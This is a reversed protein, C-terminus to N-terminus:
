KESDTTQPERNITQRMRPNNQAGTRNRFVRTTLRGVLATIQRASLPTPVIELISAQRSNAESIASDECLHGLEAPRVRLFKECLMSFKQSIDNAEDNDAVRNVFMMPLDKLGRKILWKCLGFSGTIASLDPLMMLISEDCESVIQDLREDIGSATDILILDYPTSSDRLTKFFRKLKDEEVLELCEVISPSALLYVDPAIELAANQLPMGDDLVDKISHTPSSNSLIHQCGMQWDLDVLLVRLGARGACVALNFALTSKGTGGKGSVLAVLQPKGAFAGQSSRSPPTYRKFTM